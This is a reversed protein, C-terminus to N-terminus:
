GSSAARRASISKGGGSSSAAFATVVTDITSAARAEVQDEVTRLHAVHEQRQDGIRAVARLLTCVQHVPM